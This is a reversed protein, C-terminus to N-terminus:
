QYQTFDYLLHSADLDGLLDGVVLQQRHTAPLQETGLYARGRETGVQGRYWREASFRM